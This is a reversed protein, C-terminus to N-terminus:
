AVLRARAREIMGQDIGCAHFYGELGGYQEDIAAFCHNIFEPRVTMLARVSADDLHQGFSARVHHAGAAIRAEINGTENTMLYDAMWDDPHVGLAHHLMAVAIGTRDKGAMCHILSPGDVEGLARIYHAMAQMFGPRFPIRAYGETMHRVADAANQVNRAAEVHPAAQVATDSVFLIRAQFGDPRRCPSEARERDSRLDIVAALSLSHLRGLDAPTADRHQASRFLMGQRLRGDQAAYGGYDRFNNIREFQLVRAFMMDATM